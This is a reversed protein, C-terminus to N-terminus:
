YMSEAYWNFAKSVRTCRHLWWRLWYTSSLIGYMQASLRGGCCRSQGLFGSTHGKGGYIVKAELIRLLGVWLMHTRINLRRTETHHEHPPDMTSYTKPLENWRVASYNENYKWLLYGNVQQNQKDPFFECTNKHINTKMKSYVCLEPDYTLYTSLSGFM